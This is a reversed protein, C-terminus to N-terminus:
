NGRTVSIPATFAYGQRHATLLPLHHGLEEMVKSRLRRVMIELRRLDYHEPDHGLAQTLEQRSVARGPVRSLQTLLVQESHTLKVSRGDPASLSWALTDLVWGQQLTPRLRRLLNRVVASLEELPVPKVLYCDAGNLAGQVRDDPAGRASMVVIGKDRLRDRGRELWALGDGDPLGLDLVLVDVPHTLLWREAEDLGGAGEAEIGDFRLFSVVAERLDAEDEIVLVRPPDTSRTTTLM